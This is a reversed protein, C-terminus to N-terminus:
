AVVEANKRVRNIAEVLKKQQGAAFLRVFSTPKDFPARLLINMDEMYGNQEVYAIVKQVFAIQRANLSEENIFGSFAEMAAEHDLKAIKRVLLGFPTDGFERRYDEKNGLETTLIRELESYDGQTLPQNRVLKHIILSNRHENIYRDVKLRYDEFDYGADLEVGEEYQLIPDTLNTDIIREKTKPILRILSRLKKRAEEFKLVDNSACFEPTQIERILPLHERVAPVAGIGELGAGVGTLGKRYGASVKGTDMSLLIMGYMFNDFRKAEEDDDHVAVLPALHESLERTMTEDIVEFRGEESYKDVYKRELQIDFREKMLAKLETIQAYYTSVLERRWTQYVEDVYAAHQLCKSIQVRKTFLSESIGPVYKAEVGKPNERFFYFNNCYDFIFFRKKDTYSGDLFDVCEMGDCRRTGRGIMQWFKTKSRVQKFFVLNGIHPVDIGTDMMDVSIVIHPPKEQELSYPSPSEPQKFNSIVADSGTDDCIVRACFDPGLSPYLKNFRQLIREAHRKNQAFIITKAIRDGGAVRMGKTMLDNLVRDITQQNFIIRDVDSSPVFAPPAEDDEAFDDEYRRKDEESLDDYTIGDTEFLSKTVISYYPVLHKEAVAEEYTYVHTPVHSEMDFFRYTDHDVDDRPTATLGLLQADFYDFIAKYKRFISRHCEDIIILDFHAPSFARQGKDNRISDIANLITPYTSFVIRAKYEDRNKLLNCLSMNPLYNKFDECAQGVLAKRDALFLVNTIYNGRSLVDVCSSATRTKGSGTAMVLLHRSRGNEIEACVKRIAAKQYVRNTIRDSIPIQSLPKREKRRNMLRQLSDKTFFGGVRHEGVLDQENFYTEYGNSLFVMPRRGYMRELCRSYEAAQLRGDKPDISTRKTEIVALPLGDKGFLVYDAKGINGPIGKYDHLVLETEVDKEAGEFRWGLEKLDIDILRERTVAETPDFDRAEHDKENEKEATFQESLARIQEELKRITEEKENLLSQQEKIKKIDLPVHASPIAKESFAKEAYDKGYCYDIWDVFSFLAALSAVADAPKVARETHVALNGLRVIFQLAGWVRPDVAGIFSDEHLLSQLNNRYPEKLTRDAAYVWKVSLELAKRCGIACMAPSTAFVREAEICARSFLAYEPHSSLFGFNSM